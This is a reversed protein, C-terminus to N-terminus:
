NMKRHMGEETACTLTATIRKLLTGATQVSIKSKYEFEKLYAV